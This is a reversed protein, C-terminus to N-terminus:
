VKFQNLHHDLHKYFLNNWEKSSLKGFSLSEKNEFYSSGLEQTKKINELLSQKEANFDKEGTMIFEKATQGNKAYPKESVVMNKVFTKLLWTKIAGAKEFKEQEYAMKYTVNCHALMQGVSMKGWAAESEPTLKNIRTELEQVTTQEFVNKM